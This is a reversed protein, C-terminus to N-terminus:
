TPPTPPRHLLAYVHSRRREDARGRLRICSSNKATRGIGGRLGPRRSLPASNAGGSHHALEDIEVLAEFLERGLAADRDVPGAPPNRDTRPPKREIVHEHGLDNMRERLISSTSGIGSVSVRNPGKPLRQCRNLPFHAIQPGDSTTHPFSRPAFQLIIISRAEIRYVTPRAVVKWSGATAIMAGL